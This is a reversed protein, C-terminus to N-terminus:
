FSTEPRVAIWAAIKADTNVRNRIANIRPFKELNGGLLDVFRDGIVALNFDVFSMASGVAFEGGWNTMLTELSQLYQVLKTSAFKEVAAKKTEEDPQDFLATRYYSSLDTIQDVIMDIKAAEVDNAGAM